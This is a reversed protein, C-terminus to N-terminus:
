WSMQCTLGTVTDPVTLTGGAQYSPVGSATQYPNNVSFTVEYDVADITLVVTGSSASDANCAFTGDTKSNSTYWSEINILIGFTGGSPVIIETNEDEIVLEVTCVGERCIEGAACEVACAGCNATDETTDTCVEGCLMIFGAVPCDCIGAM